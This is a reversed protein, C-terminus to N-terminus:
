EGQHNDLRWRDSETRDCARLAWPGRNLIACHPGAPVLYLSAEMAQGDGCCHMGNSQTSRQPTALHYPLPSQIGWEFTRIRGGWGM